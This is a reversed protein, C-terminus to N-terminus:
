APPAAPQNTEVRQGAAISTFINYVLFVQGLLMMSGGLARLIFYPKMAVLSQMFPDGAIWSFGQIAGAIWLAGSSIIFGIISLWYHWNALNWNISIERDTIKPIIYYIGAFLVFSFGAFPGMHAHGVTWQTFKTVASVSMLAQMPGQFCALLYFIIGTVLFKLRIDEAVLQWKGKMTGFFNAVVSWVPIILLLSPIIGAKMLWMPIPSHVLHHPGNWPYLIALTWFGILSLRHSYIPNGTLKPLLYYIFGVGATTFWLGIANHGYFWNINAQNIGSLWPWNGIIYVLPLWILSALIYWLTVYLQQEKRQFITGYVNVIVLIVGIAVYIDLLLPLEAYEVGSSMGMALAVVALVILINWLIVTLNGLRESYLKTGTLKPVIYFILGIYAASLWAFLVGNTHIPRIRGFSLYPIGDLFGPYIMKLALILGVLMSIVLWVMSSLMFNRSASNEATSLM